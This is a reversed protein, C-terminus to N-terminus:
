CFICSTSHVYACVCVCACAHVCVCEGAVLVDFRCINFTSAAINDPARCSYEGVFMPDFDTFILERETVTLDSPSVAPVQCSCEDMTDAPDPRIVTVDRYWSLIFAERLRHRCTLTM